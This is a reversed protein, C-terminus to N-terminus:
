PGRLLILRQQTCALMLPLDQRGLAMWSQGPGTLVKRLGVKMQLYKNNNQRSNASIIDIEM